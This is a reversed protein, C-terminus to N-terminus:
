HTSHLLTYQCSCVKAVLFDGLIGNGGLMERALSVTERARLSIWAKCFDVSGDTRKLFETRLLYSHSIRVKGMSAQGPTMKGSEYINCLRWGVLVMAQINGLMRVLKEQNIQFAALPAGFQKREKLYRDHISLDSSITLSNVAFWYYSWKLIGTVCTM